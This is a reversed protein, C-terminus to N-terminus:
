NQNGSVRYIIARGKPKEVVQKSQVLTELIEKVEKANLRWSVRRLIDSYAIGDDKSRQIVGLIRANNDGVPTSQLKEMLKPLHKENENLLALAEQLDEEELVLTERRAVSLCMGIKLLTDHKRGYYGRLSGGGVADADFVEEYWTTYWERAQDSISFQGNLQGMEVLDKLLEGQIRRQAVTLEPFANKRWGRARCVFVIRSTFGGGVARAPMSDRMWDITSGALMNICVRDCVERSRSITHYDFNEPSDFAKTLLQMLTTDHTSSGLFVSMEDAVIYGVSEKHKKYHGALAHIFAETTIKQGIYFAEPFALKHFSTSLGIATSKRSVASSAVLVVFLNPFLTYYGRDLFVARGLSAAVASLGCWLHFAEPSESAETYMLYSKIWDKCKRM